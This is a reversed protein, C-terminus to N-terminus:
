KVNKCILLVQHAELKLKIHYALVFYLIFNSLSTHNVNKKNTKVFLAISSYAMNGKSQGGYILSWHLWNRESVPQM